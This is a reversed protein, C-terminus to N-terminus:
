RNPQASARERGRARFSFFEDDTEFEFATNSTTTQIPRSPLGIEDLRTAALTTHCGLVGTGSRTGAAEVESSDVTQLHQQLM